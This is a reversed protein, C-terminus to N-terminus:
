LNFERTKLFYEPSLSAKKDHKIPDCCEYHALTEIDSNCVTISLCFCDVPRPLLQFSNRYLLQNMRALASDWVFVVFEHGGWLEAGERV